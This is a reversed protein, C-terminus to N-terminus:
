CIIIKKDKEESISDKKRKRVKIKNDNNFKKNKNLREKLREKLPRKFNNVESNDKEKDEDFNLNDNIKNNIDSCEKEENLNINDLLNIINNYENSDFDDEDLYNNYNSDELESENKINENNISNNPEYIVDILNEYNNNEKEIQFDEIEDADDVRNEEVKEEIDYLFNIWNDSEEEDVIELNNHIIAKLYDKFESYDIWRLNKNFNTKDILLILSKTIYDNRNKEPNEITSNLIIKTIASIFNKNDITKKPLNYNIKSNISECINNTTYLKNLFLNNNDKQFYKILEVYNYFKPNLNFLYKKLYNYFSKIKNDNKLKELIINKFKTINKINIFCLLEINKLIECAKPNIKKRCIGTKTLRGRIM